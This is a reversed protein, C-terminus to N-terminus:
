SKRCPGLVCRDRRMLDPFLCFSTLTSGMLNPGMKDGSSRLHSDNWSTIASPTEHPGSWSTMFESSHCKELGCFLGHTGTFFMGPQIDSMLCTVAFTLLSGAYVHDKAHLLWDCWLARRKYTMWIISQYQM